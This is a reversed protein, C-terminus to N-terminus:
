RIQLVVYKQNTYDSLASLATGLGGSTAGKLGLSKARGALKSKIGNVEAASGKIEYSVYWSEGNASSKSVVYDAIDPGNNNGLYKRILAQHDKLDATPNGTFYDMSDAYFALAATKLNRLNSVINSVKASTTAETSSMMMMASLIGIVVIVILLEVLTFGRRKMERKM